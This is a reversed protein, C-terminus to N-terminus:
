DVAALADKWRAFLDTLFRRAKEGIGPAYSERHGAINLTKVGAARLFELVADRTYEDLVPLVLMDRDYKRAASATAHYGASQQNGLWLTADAWEVNMNTRIKPNRSGCNEANYLHAYEPHSGEEDAFYHPMWGAVALGVAKAADWGAKDVGTQGGSIVLIEGSTM